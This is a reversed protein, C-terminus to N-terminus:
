WRKLPLDKPKQPADCKDYYEIRHRTMCIRCAVDWQTVKLGRLCKGAKLKNDAFDKAEKEWHETAEKPEKTDKKYQEYLPQARTPKSLPKSPRNPESQTPQKQISVEPEIKVETSMQLPTPRLMGPKGEVIITGDPLKDKYSWGKAMYKDLEEMKIRVQTQAIEQDSVYISVAAMHNKYLEALKKVGHRKYEKELYASHGQWAHIVSEPILAESMKTSFFKRLTHIHYVHVRIKTSEDRQGLGANVLANNWAYTTMRREMGFVVEKPFPDGTRKRRSDKVKLWERIADRAEYSFWMLRGGVEKKTYQQRINVQPPDADLDLDNIKLQLAAGIRAGTSILLLSLARMYINLHSLVSRAEEKTLIKDQTRPKNPALLGRLDEWDKKSIEYGQRDFFKKVMSSIPHCSKPAYGNENLWVVFDNFDDLFSRRNEKLEKFYAEIDREIISLREQKADKGELEKKWKKGKFDPYRTEGYVSKLFCLLSVLYQLRTRETRVKKRLFERLRGKKVQKETVIKDLRLM